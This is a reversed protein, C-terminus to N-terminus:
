STASQPEFKPITDAIPDGTFTAVWGDPRTFLRIATFRPSTGMDFWHRTNAPVNLLDGAECVIQFVHDDNRLYFAGSGEVFFRVEDDDHRHEALFKGRAAVKDPHDPTMRVVDASQYGGDRKLREVDAEYAKLVATQDASAGLPQDAAWREFAVDFEKLRFRIEAEGSSHLLRRGDPEHARFVTLTTM